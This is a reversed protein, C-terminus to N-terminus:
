HASVARYTSNIKPTWPKPGPATDYSRFREATKTWQRGKPPWWGIANRLVCPRGHLCVAFWPWSPFLFCLFMKCWCFFVLCHPPLFETHWICVDTAISCYCTLNSTLTAAALVLYDCSSVSHRNMVAEYWFSMGPCRISNWFVTCSPGEIYISSRVLDEYEYPCGLLTKMCVVRICPMQLIKMCPRRVPHWSSRIRGLTKENSEHMSTCSWALVEQLFEGRDECCRGVLVEVLGPWSKWIKRVQLVTGHFGQLITM